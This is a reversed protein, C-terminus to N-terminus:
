ILLRKLMKKPKEFSQLPSDSWGFWVDGIHSFSLWVYPSPFTEDLNIATEFYKRSQANDKENQRYLIQLGKMFKDFAQINITGIGWSQAQEGATLNVAMQEIFKMAIEDQLAFIDTLDRDYNDSWMHYDTIADILQATIRVRDGAKQVSGELIYRVGLEQAIQKAGISKGKYSFSSHRAIVFLDKLKCLGSIIQETLGDRFYEQSPDGSMNNFPMVAISPKEPVDLSEDVLPKLSESASLVKYVRVPEKINKVEHEGIYEFGLEIKEKV